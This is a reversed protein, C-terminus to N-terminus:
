KILKRLEKGKKLSINIMEEIDKESLSTEGGKQMACIRGDETTTITMKADSAKEEDRTPDVIFKDEIKLVTIPIPLEKLALKKTKKKYDIKDNEVDYEPFKSNKLAVLSALGIADALNGADNVSYADIIVIWMKEGVKICLKKLDLADSERIGRDVVARAYEIAEISPPGSEFKPSSLPLLEVNAMITGKDPTDPYPTSVEMKIGAIVVTDGITVRASGEASKPSVDTEITIKRFEDSKRRDVRINKELLKTVYEENM